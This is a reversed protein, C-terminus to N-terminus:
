VGRGARGIMGAIEARGADGACRSRILRRLRGIDDEGDAGPQLVEGGSRPRQEAIRRAPQGAVVRLHEIGGLMVHPREDGIRADPVRLQIRCQVATTRWIAPQLTRCSCEGRPALLDGAAVAGEL